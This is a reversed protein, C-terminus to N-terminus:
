QGYVGRSNDLRNAEKIVDRFMNVLGRENIMNVLFGPLSGGPDMYLSYSVVNSGNNKKVQFVGTGNSLYIPKGTRQYKKAIYEKFRSERDVLRWYAYGAEDNHRIMKYVYHRDKIIPANIHQYGFITDGQVEIAEFDINNASKIVTEYNEINEFVSYLILPDIDTTKSVRYAKLNKNQIHKQYVRVSDDFNHILEWNKTNSLEAIDSANLRSLLVFGGLLLFFLLKQKM